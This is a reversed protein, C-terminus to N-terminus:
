GSSKTPTPYITAIAINGGERLKEGRLRLLLCTSLLSPHPHLIKTQKLYTFQYAGINSCTNVLVPPTRSPRAGAGASTELGSSYLM